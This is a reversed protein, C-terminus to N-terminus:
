KSDEKFLEKEIDRLKRSAKVLNKGSRYVEITAYVSNYISGFYLLSSLITPKDEKIAEIAVYNGMILFGLSYINRILFNQLHLGSIEIHKSASKLQVKPTEREFVIEGNGLVIKSIQINRFESVENEKWDKFQTFFEGKKIFTGEIDRGGKLTLTDPVEQSYSFGILLFIFLYKKM